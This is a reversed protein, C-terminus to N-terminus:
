NYFFLLSLFFIGVKIGFFLGYIVSKIKVLYLFRLLSFYYNPEISHEHFRHLFNVFKTFNLCFSLVFCGILLVNLSGTIRRSM